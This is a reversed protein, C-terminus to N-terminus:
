RRWYEILRSRYCRGINGKAYLNLLRSVLFGIARHHLLIQTNYYYNSGLWGREEWFGYRGPFVKEYLKTEDRNYLFCLYQMLSPRRYVDSTLELYFRRSIADIRKMMRKRYRQNTQYFTYHIGLIGAVNYGCIRAHYFNIYKAVSLAGDTEDTAIVLAPYGIHEPLHDLYMFRDMFNKFLGSVQHAYGPTALILGDSRDIEDKISPGDDKQLPCFSGGKEMCRLCGRCWRLEKDILHLYTFELSEDMDGIKEEIEKVISMTNGNKRPSGSIVLVKKM